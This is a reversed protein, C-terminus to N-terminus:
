QKEKDIHIAFAILMVRGVVSLTMNAGVIDM